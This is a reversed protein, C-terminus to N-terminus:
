FATNIIIGSPFPIVTTHLELAALGDGDYDIAFDDCAYRPSVYEAFECCLGIPDFELESGTHYELDSLYDFLAVLAPRTFNEPRVSMIGNIFQSQSVTTKM